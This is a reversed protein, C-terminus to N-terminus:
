RQAGLGAAPFEEHVIMLPGGQSRIAYTRQGMVRPGLHVAAGARAVQPHRAGAYAQMAEDQTKARGCRLRMSSECAGSRVQPTPAM